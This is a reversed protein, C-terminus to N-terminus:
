GFRDFVKPTIMWALEGKIPHYGIVDIRALGGKKMVIRGGGILSGIVASFDPEHGVFMVADDRGIDRTLLEVAGVTFGPSLERRVQVAVGLASGVVDATQRARALPSSYLRDPQVELLKLLRAMRRTHRLGKETLQRQADPVNATEAAEAHAHRLFFLQM